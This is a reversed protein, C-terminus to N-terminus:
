GRQNLRALVTPRPIFKIKRRASVKMEDGTINNRRTHANIKTLIFRGFGALAVEDEQDLAEIVAEKVQNIVEEVKYVPLDTEQAVIRALDRTNM